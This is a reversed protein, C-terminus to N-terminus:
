ATHCPLGVNLRWDNQYHGTQSLPHACQQSVHSIRYKTTLLVSVLNISQIQNLAAPTTMGVRSVSSQINEYSLV